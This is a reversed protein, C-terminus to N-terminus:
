FVEVAPRLDLEHTWASPKQEILQFYTAAIDEPIMCKAPEMGFKKEAREGWIVGDLLTHVVHIGQKGYARALSQSLGRLAFKSAAFASFKASGKVSATAGSFIVTGGGLELMGPLVAQATQVAGLCTVRWLRDFIEPETDLFDGIHISAANHILVSAHGLTERIQSFARTVSEGDGVDCAFSHFAKDDLEFRCTRSLGAVKYGREILGIALRESLGPAFGTIVATKTDSSM